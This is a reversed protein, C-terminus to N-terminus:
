RCDVIIEVNAWVQGWVSLLSKSIDISIIFQLYFLATFQSYPLILKEILAFPLIDHTLYFYYFLAEIFFRNTTVDLIFNFLINLCYEIVHFQTWSAIFVMWNLESTWNVKNMKKGANPILKKYYNHLCQSSMFLAKWDFILKLWIWLLM